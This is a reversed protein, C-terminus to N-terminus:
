SEILKSIHDAVYLDFAANGVSKFITNKSRYSAAINEPLSGMETIDNKNILGKSLPVTIDASEKICSEKHDAFVDFKEYIEEDIEQMDKKFSGIASIHVGQKLKVDKLYFLPTKTNTAAIIIDSEGLHSLNDVLQIESKIKDKLNSCLEEAKSKTRYYIHVKKIDRIDCAAIIQTYAQTSSGFVSIIESEKKSLIDISAASIAATRVATLAAADFMFEVIGTKANALTLVGNISPKDLEKNKECVGVYKCAVRNLRESFVPMFLYTANLTNANIHIRQPVTVRNSSLDFLSRKAVEVLQKYDALSYISEGDIFKM